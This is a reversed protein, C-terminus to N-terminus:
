HQQIRRWEAGGVIASGDELSRLRSTAIDNEQMFRSNYLSCEDFEYLVSYAANKNKGIEVFICMASNIKSSFYCYQKHNNEVFISIEFYLVIDNRSQNIIASLNREIGGSNVFICQSLDNKCGVCSIAIVLLAVINSIYGFSHRKM